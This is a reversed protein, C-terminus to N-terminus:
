INESKLYDHIGLNKELKRFANVRKEKQNRSRDNNTAFPREVSYDVPGFRCENITVEQRQM